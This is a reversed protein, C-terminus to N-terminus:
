IGLRGPLATFLLKKGLLLKKWQARALAIGGLHISVGDM